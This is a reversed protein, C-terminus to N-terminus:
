IPAHHYHREGCLEKENDKVLYALHKLQDKRWSVPKTKGAAFTARLRDVIAPLEEVSTYGTDSM